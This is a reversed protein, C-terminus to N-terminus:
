RYICSQEGHLYSVFRKIIELGTFKQGVEFSTTIRKEVFTSSTDPGTLSLQWFYFLEHWWCALLTLDFQKLRKTEKWTGEYSNMEIFVLNPHGSLWWLHAERRLSCPSTKKVFLSTWLLKLTVNEPFFFNWIETNCIALSQSWTRIVGSIHEPASFCTMNEWGWSRSVLTKDPDGIGYYDLNGLFWTSNYPM